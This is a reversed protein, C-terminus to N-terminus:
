MALSPECQAAQWDAQRPGLHGGADERGARPDGHSRRCPFGNGHSADLASFFPITGDRVGAESLCQDGQLIGIPPLHELGAMTLRARLKSPPSAM